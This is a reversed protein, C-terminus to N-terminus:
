CYGHRAQKGSGGHADPVRRCAAGSRGARQGVCLTGSGQRLNRLKRRLNDEHNAPLFQSRLANSFTRWDPFPISAGGYSSSEALSVYMYWALANNALLTPVYKMCDAGFVGNATFYAATSFIWTIVDAGVASPDFPSPSKLRLKFDSSRGSSTGASVSFPPAYAFQVSVFQAMLREFKENLERIHGEHQRLQEGQTAAHIDAARLQHALTEDGDLMPAAALSPQFAAVPSPSDM